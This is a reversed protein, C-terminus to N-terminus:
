RGLKYQGTRIAAITGGDILLDTGTIFGAHEGLLFAGAEAIEDSTGTREAASADIMRQYGEGAANFEDYALPTVIVGPSLTNIRARRTKWTTAAAKMVQLHNVRKAIMYAWGSNQMAIEKILPLDMLGETSTNLIAQETEYPINYMYGTQSSIILGAAGPAIVKGFADVAYGPGIQVNDGIDIGGISMATFSHNIFVGKGFRMQKPFDIQVPTFIGIQPPYGDFLEEFATQWAETQPEAHNLHFLARNARHLEEICPRYADSYMDVEQGTRLADFIDMGTKMVREEEGM